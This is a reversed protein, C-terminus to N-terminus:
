LEKVLKDLENTDTQVSKHNDLSSQVDTKIGETLQRVAELM